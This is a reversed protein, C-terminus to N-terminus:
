NAPGQPGLALEAIAKAAELAAEETAYPGGGPQEIDDVDVTELDITDIEFHQTQRLTVTVEAGSDLAVSRSFFRGPTTMNMPQAIMKKSASYRGLQRATSSWLLGLRHSYTFGAIKQFWVASLTTLRFVKLVGYADM